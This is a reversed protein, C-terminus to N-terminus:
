KRPVFAITESTTMLSQFEEESIAEDFVAAALGDHDLVEITRICKKELGKERVLALAAEDDFSKSVRRELKLKSFGAIEEPLDFWVHGESDEAGRAKVADKLRGKLEDKRASLSKVQDSIDAYARFWSEISANTVGGNTSKRVIVRKAEKGMDTEKPGDGPTGQPEVGM